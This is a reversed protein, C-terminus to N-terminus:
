GWECACTWACTRVKLLDSSMYNDTNQARTEGATEVDTLGSSSGSPPVPPLSQKQDCSQQELAPLSTTTALPQPLAHTAGVMGAPPKPVTPVTLPKPNVPTPCRFPSWLSCHCISIIHSLHFTGTGTCANHGKDALGNWWAIKTFTLWVVILHTHRTSPRYFFHHMDYVLSLEWVVSHLEFVFM